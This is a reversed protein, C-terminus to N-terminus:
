EDDPNRDQKSATQSTSRALTGYTDGWFCLNMIDIISRIKYVQMTYFQIILNVFFLSAEGSSYLRQECYSDFDYLQEVYDSCKM